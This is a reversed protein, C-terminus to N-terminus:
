KWIAADKQTETPGCLFPFIIMQWGGVESNFVKTQKKFDELNM